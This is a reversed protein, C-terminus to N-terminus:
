NWRCYKKTHIASKLSCCIKKDIYVTFDIDKMAQKKVASYQYVTIPYKGRYEGINATFLKKNIMQPKIDYNLIDSIKLYKRTDLDIPTNNYTPVIYSNIKFKEAFIDTNIIEGTKYKLNQM